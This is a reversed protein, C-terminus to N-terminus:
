SDLGCIEQLSIWEIGGAQQNFVPIIAKENIENIILLQGNLSGNNYIEIRLEEIDNMANNVEDFSKNYINEKLDPIYYEVFYFILGLTVILILIIPLVKWIFKSKKNFNIVPEQSIINSGQQQISDIPTVPIKVETNGENDEEM